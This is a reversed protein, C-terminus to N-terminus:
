MRFNRKKNLQEDLDAKLDYVEMVRQMSKASYEEYVKTVEQSPKVYVPYDEYDFTDCVVIMHTYGEKSAVGTEFWDKIEAKTTM